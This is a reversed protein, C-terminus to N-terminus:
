FTAWSQWPGGQVSGFEQQLRRRERIHAEHKADAEEDDSSDLYEPPEHVVKLGPLTVEEVETSAGEEEDSAHLEEEPLSHRLSTAPSLGRKSSSLKRASGPASPLGEVSTAPSSYAAGESGTSLSAASGQRSRSKSRGLGSGVVPPPSHGPSSHRSSSPTRSRPHRLTLPRTSPNAFACNSPYSAIPTGSSPPTLLPAPASFFCRDCVRASVPLLAPQPTPSSTPTSSSATSSTSISSANSSAHSSAASSTPSVSYALSPLDLASSRPTARPTGRPTFAHHAEDDSVPWLFTSRSTHAACFIDGCTRCHHRRNLLDFRLSCDPDACQQAHEDPQLCSEWAPGTLTLDFTLGRARFQALPVRRVKWQSKPLMRGRVIPASLEKSADPNVPSWPSAAAAALSGLWTSKAETTALSPSQPPSANLLM